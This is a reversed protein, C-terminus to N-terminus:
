KTDQSRASNVQKESLHNNNSKNFAKANEIYVIVGVALLSLKIEEKGIQIDKIKKKGREENRWSSSGASQQIFITLPFMRARNGNKLSFSETKFM